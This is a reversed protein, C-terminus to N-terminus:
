NRTPEAKFVVDFKATYSYTKGDKSMSGQTTGYTMDLLCENRKLSFYAQNRMRVVLDWGEQRYKSSTDLTIHAIEQLGKTKELEPFAYEVTVPPDGASKMQPTQLEAKWKAGVPVEKDEPLIPGMLPWLMNLRGLLPHNADLECQGRRTVRIKGTVLLSQLLRQAQDGPLGAPRKLEGDEVSVDLSKDEFSGKWNQDLFKLEGIASGNKDVDQVTFKARFAFTFDAGPAERGDVAATAKLSGKWSLERCQGAKFEWAITRKVTDQSSAQLGGFLLLM